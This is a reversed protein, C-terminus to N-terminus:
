SEEVAVPEFPTTGDFLGAILPGINDAAQGVETCAQLLTEENVGGADVARDVYVANAFWYTSVSRATANLDNLETLLKASRRIGEAARAVVRIAMPPGPEVRVFCAATGFRFLYDGDKDAVVRPQNWAEELIQEVFSRFWAIEQV